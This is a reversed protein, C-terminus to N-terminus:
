RAAACAGGYCAWTCPCTRCPAIAPLSEAISPSVGAEASSRGGSPSSSTSSGNQCYGAHPGARSPVPCRRTQAV